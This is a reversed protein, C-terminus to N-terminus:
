RLDTVLYLDSVDQAYSYAFTRGDQTIQAVAISRVGTTDAPYLETVLEKRGDEVNVRYVQSPIEGRRYVYLWRGDGSWRMPTEPARVGPVQRAAGGHVSQIVVHQDDTVLALSAGDPSVPHSYRLPRIGEASIARPPGGDIDQVYARPRQDHERGAFLVHRGDPFWAVAQFDVIGPATLVRTQGVGTPLLAIGAPPTLKLSAVLRQDPSLAGLHGDGLRVASSGDLRRSHVSYAATGAGLGQENFILFDGSPSLDAPVSVDLWSVDHPGARDDIVYVSLGGRFVGQTLLVRGAPDIDQLALRSPTRAVVRQRGNLDAAYLQCNSGVESATFWIEEGTASWALGNVSAWEATPATKTGDLSVVAVRGRDDGMLPHELLAVHRGDRAVRVHSLWGETEILRHGIPFELVYRGGVARIVSLNSGDPSWDASEVDDLVERPAGGGLPVRALRGRAAWSIVYRRDLSVAVEGSRSVALIDADPLNLPTSEPSSPRTSFARIPNGSWAAGYVVTSGDPAFRASVVSGRRFTLQQFRPVPRTGSRRGVMFGASAVTGAGIATGIATLVQRRSLRFPGGGGAVARTTDVMGLVGALAAELVGASGYRQAPEPDTAHEVVEIFAAPLDPRADRLRRRENLAHARRVDAVTHAVIPFSASVLHDMLVGLSYIDSRVSPPKGAYIEPAMYLPTGVTTAVENDAIAALDRVAGFDMLVIRGGAERMVNQAKIDGHVLGAAHVAALARCVDVAILTAERPGFVGQSRVIESLTRGSIFEMWLGVVGDRTDAGYVTVVNPHRVRALLRGEEMVASEVVAPPARRLLKVAVERALQPDWALYVAGFAGQGLMRRLQLHGWVRPAATDDAGWAPAARAAISASVDPGRSDNSLPQNADALDALRRLGRLVKRDDEGTVRSEAAAWDVPVGDAIAAAIASLSDLESDM